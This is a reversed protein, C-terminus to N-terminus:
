SRNTPSDGKPVVGSEFELPPLPDLPPLHRPMSRESMVSHSRTRTSSPTRPLPRYPPSLLPSPSPATAFLSTPLPRLALSDKRRVLPSQPPPQSSTQGQQPHRLLAPSLPSRAADVSVPRGSSQSMPSLSAPRATSSAAAVQERRQWSSPGAEHLQPTRLANSPRLLARPEDSGSAMGTPHRHRIDTASMRRSADVPRTDHPQGESGSELAVSSARGRSDPRPSSVVSPYRQSSSAYSSRLMSTQFAATLPVSSPGTSSRPRFPLASSSSHSGAVSPRRRSSSSAWLPQPQDPSAPPSPLQRSQPQHDSDEMLPEMGPRHVAPKARGSASRGVGSAFVPSVPSLPFMSASLPRGASGPHTSSYAAGGTATSADIRSAFGSPTPGQTSRSPSMHADVIDQSMEDVYSTRLTAHSTTANDTRFSYEVENVSETNSHKSRLDSWTINSAPDILPFLLDPGLTHEIHQMKQHRDSSRRSGFFGSELDERANVVRRKKHHRALPVAILVLLAVLAVVGLVGAVVSLNVSKDGDNPSCNSGDAKIM